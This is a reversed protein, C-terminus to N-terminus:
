KNYKANIVKEFLTLGLKGLEPIDNFYCMYNEVVQKIDKSKLLEDRLINEDCGYKKWYNVFVNISVKNLGDKWETLETNEPAKPSNVPYSTKPLNKFRFSGSSKPLKQVCLKDREEKKIAIKENLKEVEKNQKITKEISKLDVFSM